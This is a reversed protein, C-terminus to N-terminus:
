FHSRGGLAPDGVRTVTRVGPTLIAGVLLVQAHVWVRESFLPAFVTLLPVIDVM